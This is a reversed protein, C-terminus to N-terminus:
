GGSKEPWVAFTVAANPARESSIATEGNTTYLQLISPAGSTTNIIAMSKIPFLKAGQDIVCVSERGKGTPIQALFIAAPALQSPLRYQSIVSHSAADIKLLNLSGDLVTQIAYVSTGDSSVVLGNTCSAAPLNGVLRPTAEGGVSIYLIANSATDGVYCEAGNPTVVVSGSQIGEPLDVSGSVRNESTSFVYVKSDNTTAYGESRIQSIALCFPAKGGFASSQIVAVASADVTQIVNINGGADAMYVNSGDPTMALAGPTQPFTSSATILVPSVTLNLSFINPGSLGSSDAVARTADPTIVVFLPQATNVLPDDSSSQGSTPYILSLGSECEMARWAPAAALPGGAVLASAFFWPQFKSM